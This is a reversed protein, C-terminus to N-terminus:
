APPPARAASSLAAPATTRPPVADPTGGGSAAVEPWPWGPPILVSPMTTYTAVERGGRGGYWGLRWVSLTVEGTAAVHVGVTGGCGVSSRDLWLQASTDTVPHVSRWGTGGALRNEQQVYHSSWAECNTNAAGARPAVLAGVVMALVM